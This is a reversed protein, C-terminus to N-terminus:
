LEVSLDPLWVQRREVRKGNEIKTMNSWRPRIRILVGGLAVPSLMKQEVYNGRPVQGTMAGPRYGKLFGGTCALIKTRHRLSPPGGPLYVPECWDIPAAVKKTHHGILFIDGAFHAPLQDLQNLPGSIRRGGGVGHHCWVLVSGTRPLRTAASEPYGFTLRVYASSGLFTTGLMRALMQDSTTGDLFDHYHHGELLGLWRGRSPKLAEEYIEKVMKEASKDLAKRATDYLKAGRLADRNSPSFNDIYDGMGLFYADNEVGWRIHAKLMSLAIESEDGAWQIDGVPLLLM